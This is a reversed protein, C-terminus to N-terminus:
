SIYICFIAVQSYKLHFIIKTVSYVQLEAQDIPISDGGRQVIGVRAVLNYM